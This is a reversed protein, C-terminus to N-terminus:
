GTLAGPRFSAGASAPRDCRSAPGVTPWVPLTDSRDANGTARVLGSFFAHVFPRGGSTREFVSPDKTYTFPYHAPKKYGHSDGATLTGGCGAVTCADGPDFVQPDHWAGCTACTLVNEYVVDQRSGRPVANSVPLAAENDNV